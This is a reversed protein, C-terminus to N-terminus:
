SRCDRAQRRQGLEDDADDQHQEEGDADERPQRRDRADIGGDGDERLELQEDQRRDGQAQRHDGYTLRMSRAEVISTSSLSYTM